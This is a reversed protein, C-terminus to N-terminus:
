RSRRPAGGMGRGGDRTERRKGRWGGGRFGGRERRIRRREEWRVRKVFNRYMAQMERVQTIFEREAERGGQRRPCQYM